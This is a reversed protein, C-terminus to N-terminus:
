IARQEPGKKGGCPINTGHPDPWRETAAGAQCDGALVLRRHPFDSCWLAGHKRVPLRRSGDAPGPSPVHLLSCDRGLRGTAPPTLPSLTRYSRVPAGPSLPPGAFGVPHLALCCRDEPRAPPSPPGGIWRHLYAARSPRRRGDWISSSRGAVGARGRVRASWIRSVSGCLQGFVLPLGSGPSGSKKSTGRAGILRPAGYCHRPARLGRAM